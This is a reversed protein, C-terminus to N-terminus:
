AARCFLIMLRCLLEPEPSTEKILTPNSPAPRM